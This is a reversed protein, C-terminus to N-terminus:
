PLSRAHPEDHEHLLGLAAEIVSDPPVGRLCAQHGQPCVSRLCNRCPVDQYLVRSRLLWPTHQPNTLAYLCVLPTGVAAAIHAPGSNNALLLASGEILAALGGLSLAGVVDVVPQAMAARVQAAAERDGEGGCLVGQWGAQVLAALAVGFDHPPYRRSPATAGPHLLVYPRGASLGAQSLVARAEMRDADRVTFRLRPNVPAPVGMHAVLALQRAVEHRMDPAITDEEHLWESLLGYPNERSFAMRCPIGAMRCLMAVPLASQTCTTFIVAVDVQAAKLQAMLPWEDDVEPAGPPRVWAARHVWVEDLMDLHPAMRAGAPSTLLTLRVHPLAERVAQMAPTCMLVDGLNDLRIFLIHRAQALAPMLATSM